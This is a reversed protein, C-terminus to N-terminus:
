TDFYFYARLLHPNLFYLLWLFCSYFHNIYFRWFRFILLCSTKNYYVKNLITAPFNILVSKIYGDKTYCKKYLLMQIAVKVAFRLLNATIHIYFWLWIQKFAFFLFRVVMFVDHHENSMIIMVRYVVNELM